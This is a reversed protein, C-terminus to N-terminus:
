CSDSTVQWSVVDRWEEKYVYITVPGAGAADNFGAYDGTCNPGSYVCAMLGSALFGVESVSGSM